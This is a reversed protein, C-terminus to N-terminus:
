IYGIMSRVTSRFNREGHREETMKLRERFLSVMEDAWPDEMKEEEEAVFPQDLFKMHIYRQDFREKARGRERYWWTEEKHRQPAEKNYKHIDYQIGEAFDRIMAHLVEVNRLAIYMVCQSDLNKERLDEGKEYDVPLMREVEEFVKNFEKRFAAHTLRITSDSTEGYTDPLKVDNPDEDDIWLNQPMYGGRCEFILDLAPLKYHVNLHEREGHYRYYFACQVLKRVAEAKPLGEEPFKTYPCTFLKPEPDESGWGGLVHHFKWEGLKSKLLNSQRKCTFVKASVLTFITAYQSSYHVLKYIVM